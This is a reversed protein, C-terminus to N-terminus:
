RKRYQPRIKELLATRTNVKQGRQGSISGAKQDCVNELLPNRRYLLAYRAVQVIWDITLFELFPYGAADAARIACCNRFWMM